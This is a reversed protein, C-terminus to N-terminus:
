EIGLKELGQKLLSKNLNYRSRIEKLNKNIHEEKFLDKAKLAAEFADIHKEEPRVGSGWLLFLKEFVAHFILSDTTESIGRNIAKDTVHYFYDDSHGAPNLTAFIFTSVEKASWPNVTSQELENKSDTMITRVNDPLHKLLWAGVKKTLGINTRDALVATILADADKLLDNSIVLDLALVRTEATVKNPELLVLKLIDMQNINTTSEAPMKLWVNSLHRHNCYTSWQGLLHTAAKHTSQLLVYEFIDNERLKAIFETPFINWLIEFWQTNINEDYLYEIEKLTCSSFTSRMTNVLNGKDSINAKEHLVMLLLLVESKFGKNIANQLHIHHAHLNQKLPAWKAAPCRTDTPIMMLIRAFAFFYDSKYDASNFKENFKTWIKEFISTTIEDQGDGCLHFGQEILKPINEFDIEKPLKFDSAILTTIAELAHGPTVIEHPYKDGLNQLSDNKLLVETPIKNAQLNARQIGNPQAFVEVLYDSQWVKFANKQKTEDLNVQETYHTDILNWTKEDYIATESKTSILKMYSVPTDEIIKKHNQVAENMLLRLSETLTQQNLSEALASFANKIRLYHGKNRKLIIKFLKAINELNSEKGDNLYEKVKASDRRVLANRISYGGPISVEADAGKFYLVAEFSEPYTSPTGETSKIFNILKVIKNKESDTSSDLIDSLIEKTKNSNFIEGPEYFKEVALDLFGPWIKECISCKAFFVRNNTIAGTLLYTEYLGEETQHKETELREALHDRAIIENIFHLIQRPTYFPGFDILEAIQEADNTWGADDLKERSFEILDEPVLKPLPISADFFKQIIKEDLEDHEANSFPVLIILNSPTNHKSNDFFASIGTLIEEIRAKPARDINDFVIIARKDCVAPDSLIISLAEEFEEPGVFPERSVTSKVQLILKSVFSLMMTYLTVAFGGLVKVWESIRGTSDLSELAAYAVGGLAISLLAIFGIQEKTLGKDKNNFFNELNATSYDTSRGYIDSELKKYNKIDVKFQEAIRLIASRRASDKDLKWVDVYATAYNTKDKEFQHLAKQVLTSKGSGLKGTIAVRYPVVVDRLVDELWDGIIKHAFKLDATAPRDPYLHIKRKDM